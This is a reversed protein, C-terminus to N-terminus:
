NKQTRLVETYCLLFPAVGKADNEVVPESIYYEYSGDRRKNDEPGLGAVLCIGGLHLEGNESVTLYKKCIGDFTKKGLAAYSEDIVGLRAGKLMAYAIMSSGSTELYNGERGGCDAVQYYMGTEPDAYQSIGKIVDRFVSIFEDRDTGDTYDIIDALAVTFWGIARLWFNKSLGTQKDAWFASKSCDMGHYCLGKEESFMYKRVNKIQSMTDSLGGGNKLQYRVYFVQAMYIGDLWIQNPYIKKHWFNGTNTRPQEAIQDHLREIAKLYKEKGTMDYLDFLVRGENIDDLNYKDKSYGLISGDDGVYYDIFDCVFDSYKKDGTIEAFNLLATMMCGDIYNWHAPKGQRISEINWLPKDPTSGKLLSDIYADINEYM